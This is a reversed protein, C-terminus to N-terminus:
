QFMNISNNRKNLCFKQNTQYEIIYPVLLWYFRINIPVLLFLVLYFHSIFIYGLLGVVLEIGEQAENGEMFNWEEHEVLLIGITSHTWVFYFYGFHLYGFICLTWFM